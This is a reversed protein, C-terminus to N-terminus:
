GCSPSWGPPAHAPLPVAIHVECLRGKAEGASDRAVAALAAGAETDFAAKSEGHPSGLSAHLRETLATLLGSGGREGGAGPLAHVAQRCAPGSPNPYTRTNWM